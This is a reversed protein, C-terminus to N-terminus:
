KKVTPQAPHLFPILGTRFKHVVAVIINVVAVGEASQAVAAQNSSIVAHSVLVPLVVALIALWFESTELPAIRPNM